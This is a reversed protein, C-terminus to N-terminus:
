YPSKFLYYNIEKLSIFKNKFLDLYSFSRNIFLNNKIIPNSFSNDEFLIIKKNKFLFKILLSLINPRCIVIDHNRLIKKINKINFKEVIEKGNKLHLLTQDDLYNLVECNVNNENKYKAIIENWKLDEQKHENEKKKFKLSINKILNSLNKKNTFYKKKMQSYQNIFIINKINQKLKIENNTNCERIVFNLLDEYIINSTNIKNKKILKQLFLPKIFDLSNKLLYENGYDKIINYHTIVHQHKSFNINKNIKKGDVFYNNNKLLLIKHKKYIKRNKNLLEKFIIKDIQKSFYYNNLNELDYYIIFNDENSKLNIYSKKLELDINKLKNNKLLEYNNFFNSNILFKKELIAESLIRRSHIQDEKKLDSNIKIMKKLKGKALGLYRVFDSFGNTTYILIDSINSLLIARELTNTSYDEIILCKENIFFNLLNINGMEKKFGYIIINCNIYKKKIKLILTKIYEDYEKGRLINKNIRWDDNRYHISITIQKKKIPISKKNKLDIITKFSERALWEIYYVYPIDFTKSIISSNNKDIVFRQDSILQLNKKKIFFNKNLNKTDFNYVKNNSLDKAKGKYFLPNVIRNYDSYNLNLDDIIEDCFPKLLEKSNFFPDHLIVRYNFIQKFFKAFLIHFLNGGPTDSSSKLSFKTSILLKQM